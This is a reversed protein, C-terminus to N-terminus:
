NQKDHNQGKNVHLEREKIDAEVLDIIQYAKAISFVPRYTAGKIIEKPFFIKQIKLALKQKDRM